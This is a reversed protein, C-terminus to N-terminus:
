DAVRVRVTTVGARIDEIEKFAAKTLDVIRGQRYLDKSPGRDNVRVKVKKGNHANTVELVTDFPYDWSACTLLDHDFIEMSATTTRIGPSYEYYWSATGMKLTNSICPSMWAAVSLVALVLVPVFLAKIINAFNFIKM